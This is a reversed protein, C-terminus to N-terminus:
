QELDGYATHGLIVAPTLQRNTEFQRIIEIVAPGSLQPMDYDPDLVFRQEMREVTDDGSAALECELDVTQLLERLIVQNFMEDDVALIPM